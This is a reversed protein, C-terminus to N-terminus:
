AKSVFFDGNNDVFFDGNNDVLKSLIEIDEFEQDIAKFIQTSVDGTDNIELFYYSNPTLYDGTSLTLGVFYNDIFLTDDAIQYHTSSTVAGTAPNIEIKKINIKEGDYQFPLYFPPIYNTFLCQNAFKFNNITVYGTRKFDQNDTNSTFKIM